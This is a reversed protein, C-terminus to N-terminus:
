YQRPISKGSHNNYTLLEATPFGCDVEKLLYQPAKIMLIIIIIVIFVIIVFNNTM